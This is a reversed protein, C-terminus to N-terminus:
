WNRLIEMDAELDKDQQENLPVFGVSEAIRRHNAVFYEVFAFVEARDMSDANPYIFLPRALPYTADQATQVTPAICGSGNDISLAKLTDQHEEFYSYGFYGLGGQAAAVGAVLVEDDESATYDTRSAGEEGNVEGTFYDFTGSETGPGFLQLPVDPFTPDVDRWSRATADPGWIQKLQDFTLCDVWTNQRNVVVSLADNAVLFEEYAIGRTACEAHEVPKIPRSADSIDTVGDCFQTFGAGTGASDITIAVDPHEANFATAAARGLPAVTSSGDIVIVGSIENSAASPDGTEDGGGASACAALGFSLTGVCALLAARFKRTPM